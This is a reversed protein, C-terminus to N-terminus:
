RQGEKPVTDRSQIEVRRQAGPRRARDGGQEPCKQSRRWELLGLKFSLMLVSAILLVRLRSAKDCGEEDQTM